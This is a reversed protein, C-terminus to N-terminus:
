SREQPRVIIEGARVEAPLRALPQRPPGALVNGERDFRGDHCPCVFSGADPAWKLICRMHTCTASLAIVATDSVRVVFVPRTGHRIFRAEGVKLSDFPGCRIQGEEPRREPPPPKLFSIGMAAAGVGWLSLFGRILWRLATRREPRRPESDNRM